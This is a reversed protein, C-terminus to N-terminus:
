ASCVKRTERWTHHVQAPANNAVSAYIADMMESLYIGFRGPCQVEDRGLLADVFNRTPNSMPYPVHPYRILKGKSDFHDLKQGWVGTRVMGDTGHVTLTSDIMGPSNGACCGSGLCGNEFELTLSANIEVKTGCNDLVAFVRKVPSALLWIMANLMHAGTDFLFGGGSIEPKQRWSGRLPELWDQYVHAQIFELKGLGGRRILNATYQFEPTVVSNFGISLLRGTKESRAVLDRAHETKTVLPKECLVDVGADFADIVQQYHDRHPTVLVVGDLEECDLLKHYDSYAAPKAGKPEFAAKMIHTIAQKAPDCIAVVEVDPNEMMHHAHVHGMAGCGVLAVRPKRQRANASSRSQATAARKATRRKKMSRQAAVAASKKQSGRSAPM